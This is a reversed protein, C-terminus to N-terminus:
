LTFVEYDKSSSDMLMNPDICSLVQSAVGCILARRPSAPPAGLCPVKNNANDSFLAKCVLYAVDDRTVAGCVKSSETLVAKGTRPETKLGGPRVIVFTM